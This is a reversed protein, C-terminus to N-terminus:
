RRLSGAATEGGTPPLVASSLSPSENLKLEEGQQRQEPDAPHPVGMLFTVITTGTNIVLQWTDGFGFLPGTVAWLVIVLLAMLFAWPRGVAHTVRQSFKELKETFGGEDATGGGPQDHQNM